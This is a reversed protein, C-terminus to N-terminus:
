FKPKRPPQSESDNGFSQQKRREALRELMSQGSSKIPSPPSIGGQKLIPKVGVPIVLRSGVQSTNPKILSQYIERQRADMPLIKLGADIAAIMALRIFDDNGFLEITSWQKMKAFQIVRHAADENSLKEAIVINGKDIIRGNPVISIILGAPTHKIYSCDDVLMSSIEVHYEAELLRRKFARIKEKNIDEDACAIGTPENKTAEELWKVQMEMKKKENMADDEKREQMPTLEFEKEILRAAKKARKFDGLEHVVKGRIDCRSAAIHCHQHEKDRHRIVAYPCDSFGMEEILRKAIECFTDDDINREEPPLNISFHAVAKELKPNLSRVFAFESSLQRANKGAMNGGILEGRSAGNGERDDILYNLLGRFGKGKNLKVFM